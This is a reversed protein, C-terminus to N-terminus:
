RGLVAKLLTTVVCARLIQYRRIADDGDFLGMPLLNQDYELGYPIVTRTIDVDDFGAAFAHNSYYARTQCRPQRKRVDGGLIDRLVYAAAQDQLVAPAGPRWAHFPVPLATEASFCGEFLSRLKELRQEEGCGLKREYALYLNAFRDNSLTPNSM